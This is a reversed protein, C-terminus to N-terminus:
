KNAIVKRKMHKYFSNNFKNMACLLGRWGDLMWLKLVYFRFFRWLARGFAGAAVGVHDGRPVELETYLSMKRLEQEISCVSEHWLKGPIKQMVSGSPILLREHVLNSNFKTHLRHYLRIQPHKEQRAFRMEKGLYIYKRWVSFIERENTPRFTQLFAQAEANPREDADLAFIWDNRAHTAADNRLPGFGHFEGEVVRANPYPACVAEVGPTPGNDYVIVEDLGQVSELTHPLRANDDKFPIVVSIPVCDEPPM